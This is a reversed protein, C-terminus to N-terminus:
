VLLSFGMSWLANAHAEAHTLIERLIIWMDESIRFFPTSAPAYQNEMYVVNKAMTEIKYKTSSFGVLGVLKSNSRSAISPLSTNAYKAVRLM